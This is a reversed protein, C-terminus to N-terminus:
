DEFVPVAGSKGRDYRLNHQQIQHKGDVADQGCDAHCIMQRDHDSGNNDRNADHKGGGTRDGTKDAGIRRDDHQCQSEQQHDAHDQDGVAEAAM